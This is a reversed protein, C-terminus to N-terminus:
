TCQRVYEESAEDLAEVENRGLVSDRRSLEQPSPDCEEGLGIRAECEEAIAPTARASTSVSTEVLVCNGGSCDREDEVDSNKQPDLGLTSGADGKLPYQFPRGYQRTM